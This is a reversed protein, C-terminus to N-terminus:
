RVYEIFILFTKPFPLNQHNAKPFHSRTSRIVCKQYFCFLIFCFLGDFTIEKGQQAETNYQLWTGWLFSLLLFDLISLFCGAMSSHFCSSALYYCVTHVTPYYSVLFSQNTLSLHTLVWSFSLYTMWSSLIIVMSREYQSYFSASM